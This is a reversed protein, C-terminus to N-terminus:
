CRDCMFRWIQKKKGKTDSVHHALNQKGKADSMCSSASSTTETLFSSHHAHNGSPLNQLKRPVIHWLSQTRHAKRHLIAKHPGMAVPPSSSIRDRMTTRSFHMCTQSRSLLLKSPSILLKSPWFLLKSPSILLKSPWMLFKSPWFLLKSPWILFKSPQSIYRSVQASDSEMMQPVGNRRPVTPLSKWHHRRLCGLALLKLLSKQFLLHDDATRCADAYKRIDGGSKALNASEQMSSRFAFAAWKWVISPSTSAIWCQRSRNVLYGNSCACNGLCAKAILWKSSQLAANLKQNRANQLWNTFIAVSVWLGTWFYLNYLPNIQKTDTPTSRGWFAFHNQVFERGSSSPILVYVEQYMLALRHHAEWGIAPKKDHTERCKKENCGVPLMRMTVKRETIPLSSFQNRRMHDHKCPCVSQWHFIYTTFPLLNWTSCQLNTNPTSKSVRVIWHYETQLTDSDIDM